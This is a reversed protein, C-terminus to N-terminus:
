GMLLEDLEEETEKFFDKFQFLKEINFVDEPLDLYSVKMIKQDVEESLLDVLGQELSQFKAITDIHKEQLTAFEAQFSLLNDIIKYSGGEIIPSGADDKDAHKEALQMRETDYEKISEHLKTRTENLATIEGELLGLNRLVFFSFKPSFTEEKLSTFLGYLSELEARTKKITDIM